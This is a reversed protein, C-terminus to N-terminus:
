RNGAELDYASGTLMGRQMGVFYRAFADGPDAALRAIKDPINQPAREILFALVNHPLGSFGMISNTVPGNSGAYLDYGDVVYDVQYSSGLASENPTKDTVTVSHLGIFRANSAAEAQEKAMAAATAALADRETSLLPIRAAALKLRQFM